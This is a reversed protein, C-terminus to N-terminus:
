PESMAVGSMSPSAAPPDSQGVEVGGGQARGGPGAQEGTAVVVATPHPPHGVQGDAEGAVPPLRGPLVAEERLDQAGMAVGGVGDPLPVEGGLRSWCPPAGPWTAERGPAEVAPVAEVAPLGVLEHGGEVVVVVRDPRGPRDLLAVVQAGVQGVLGDLEQAVQPGDVGVLGEEEVEAGPGAVGGVLGRRISRASGRGTRRPPVGPALLGVGALELDPDDRRSRVPEAGGHTVPRPRGPLSRSRTAARKMSHKAPKRDYVSAWIPREARRGRRDPHTRVVGDDHQDRVVSGAGLTARVAGDVVDARLVEVRGARLSAGPDVLDAAREGVVVVRPAPGHGPVRGELAPLALDVFAAHGVGADHMPRGPNGGGPGDAMLEGV